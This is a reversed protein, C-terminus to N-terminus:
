YRSQTLAAGDELVAFILELVPEPMSSINYTEKLVMERQEQKKSTSAPLKAVKTPVVPTPAEAETAGEDGWGWAEGFDEDDETSPADLDKAVEEKTEEKKDDSTEEPPEGSTEEEDGWGWADAGDDDGSEKTADPAQTEDAPTDDEEVWAADWDQTDAAGAVGAVATAALEKGETLSVMRKEVRERQV